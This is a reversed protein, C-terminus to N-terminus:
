NEKIIQYLNNKKNVLILKDSDITKQNKAEASLRDLLIYKKDILDEIQKDVSTIYDDLKDQYEIIEKQLEILEMSNAHDVTVVMYFTKTKLDYLKSDVEIYKSVEKNDFRKKLELQIQEILQPIKQIEHLLNLLEKTEVKSLQVNSLTSIAQIILELSIM